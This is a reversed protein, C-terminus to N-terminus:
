AILRTTYENGDRIRDFFAIMAQHKDRFTADDVTPNGGSVLAHRTEVSYQIGGKVSYSRITIEIGPLICTATFDTFRWECDVGELATDAYRRITQHIEIFDRCIDEYLRQLASM